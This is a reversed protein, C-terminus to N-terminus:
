QRRAADLFGPYLRTREAMTNLLFPEVDASDTGVVLDAQAVWAQTGDGTKFGPGGVVLFARRRSDPALRIARLYLSDAQGPVSATRNTVVVEYFGEELLRGGEWPGDLADSES